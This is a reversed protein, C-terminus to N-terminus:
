DGAGAPPFSSNSSSMGNQALGLIRAFVVSHVQTLASQRAKSAAPHSLAPSRASAPNSAFARSPGVARQAKLELRRKHLRAMAAVPSGANPRLTALWM